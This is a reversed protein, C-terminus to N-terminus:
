STGSATVRAATHGSGNGKKNNKSPKSYDALKQAAEKEQDQHVHAYIELTIKSSTHGVLKMVTSVPVGVILLNSIYSHRFKHLSIPALNNKKIYTALWRAPHQMEIPKNARTAFLLQHQVTTPHDPWMYDSQLQRWVKLWEVTESDLPVVRRSGKTKPPNVLKRGHVGTARTKNVSLTQKVFDIDEWELAMAEGIRLGSYALIRFLIFKDLDRTTDICEFFKELQKRDWFDNLNGVKEPKRPVIVNIAPNRNIYGRKTAYELVRNVHVFFRRFNTPADQYWQKVAAQVDDTTIQDIYYDGFTPLIHLEFCDKTKAWTSERVTLIYADVWENYIDRFTKPKEAEANDTTLEGSAVGLDLENGAVLAERRTHYGGDTKYRKHGTKPDLGIYVSAKWRVGQQTKYKTISAM